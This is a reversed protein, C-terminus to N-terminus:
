WGPPRPDRDFGTVAQGQLGVARHHHQHGCVVRELVRGPNLGALPHQHGTAGAAHPHGRHLDRGLRTGPHDRGRGGRLAGVHKSRESGFVDDVGPRQRRDILHALEGAPVSGVNHHIGGGTLRHEGIQLDGRLEAPHDLDALGLDETTPEDVHRDEVLVQRQDGDVEVPHHHM